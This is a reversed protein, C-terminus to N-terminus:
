VFYLSLAIDGANISISTSTSIVGAVINFGLGQSSFVPYPLTHQAGAGGTGTSAPIGFTMALGTPGYGLSTSTSGVAPASSSNYIKLYQINTGSNFAYFGTFYGASSTVNTVNGSSSSIYTYPAFTIQGATSQLVQVSGSSASVVVLTGSTLVQLPGSTLVQLPGSTLVQVVGSSASIITPDSSLTVVGSSVAVIGSSINVVVGASSTVPALAGSSVPSGLVFVQRHQSSTVTVTDVLKGTSDPPVQIFPM